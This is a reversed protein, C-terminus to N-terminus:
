KFAIQLKQISGPSGENTVCVRNNEKDYAAPRGNFIVAVNKHKPPIFVVTPAASNNAIYRLEFGDASQQFVPHDGAIRQPYIRVLIDRSKAENGGDELTCLSEANFKDYSYYTWSIHYKDCLNLFDTLYEAYNKASESIFFEGYLVPVGFYQGDRVRERMWLRMWRKAFRGYGFGEHCLPDYYHPAYVCNYIPAFRLRTPLGGSTYMMPEFFLRSKFNNRLWMSQIDSYFKSLLKSEFQLHLGPFPENMIDVGAINPLADVYQMFYALMAIYKGKLENSDWFHTYSNIVARKFYNLNWRSWPHYSVGGDNVTWDPFGDGGFKRSFLDQHFDLIVDMGLENMWRIREITAHIYTEDYNGEEPEVAEWFVLYRVCNFGWQQLRAFDDKTHRSIFGPASKATNSINVGHYFVIRNEKDRLYHRVPGPERCIRVAFLIGFLITLVALGLGICKFLDRYKSM